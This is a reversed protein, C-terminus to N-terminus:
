PRGPAWPSQLTKWSGGLVIPQESRLQHQGAKELMLLLLLNPTKTWNPPSRYPMGVIRTRGGYIGGCTVTLVPPMTVHPLTIRESFLLQGILTLPLVSTNCVKLVPEFGTDGVIKLIQQSRM